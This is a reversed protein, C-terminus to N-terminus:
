QVEAERKEAVRKIREMMDKFSIQNDPNMNIVNIGTFGGRSVFYEKQDKHITGNIRFVDNSLVCKIGIQSYSLDSIFRDLGFPLGSRQESGSSITQIDEVANFSVTRPVGKVAVSQLELTFADAQGNAISLGDISGNLKGTVRGFSFAKTLKELDIAEFKLNSRLRRFPSLPSEMSFDSAVAHGEFLDVTVKGASNLQTKNGTIMLGESALIGTLEYPPPLLQLSGLNIDRLAIRGAIQHDNSFPSDVVADSVFVFGDALPLRVPDFTYRNDHLRLGIEQNRLQFRATELHGITIKGSRPDSHPWPKGAAAYAWPLDATLDQLNLTSAIQLGLQDLKLRGAVRDPQFSLECAAKGKLAIENLLPYAEALASQILTTFLVDLDALTISVEVPFLGKQSSRLRAIGGKALEMTGEHIRLGKPALGLDFALRLPALGFDIYFRGLLAEGQKISAHTELHNISTREDLRNALTVEAALNEAMFKGQPDAASALYLTASGTIVDYGQARLALNLSGDLQWGELYGVAPKIKEMANRVSVDKAELSVELPSLSAVAASFPGMGDISFVVAADRLDLAHVDLTGSGELSVNKLTVAPQRQLKLHDVYGKIEKIEIRDADGSFQLRGAGRQISVLSSQLRLDAFGVDGSFEVAANRGRIEVMDELTVGISGTPLVYDARVTELRCDAQWVLGAVAQDTFMQFHGLSLVRGALSIREYGLVSKMEQFAAHATVSELEPITLTFSGLLGQGATGTLSLELALLDEALLTGQVSVALPRTTLTAQFPEVWLAFPYGEQDGSLFRLAPTGLLADRIKVTHNEYFFPINGVVAGAKVSSSELFDASVTIMGEAHGQPTIEGSLAINGQAKWPDNAATEGAATLSVSGQLTRRDVQDPGTPPAISVKLERLTFSGKPAAMVLRDADLSVTQFQFLLALLFDPDPSKSEGKESFQLQADVGEIILLVPRILNRRFPNDWTGSFSVRAVKGMVEGAAAARLSIGAITIAPRVISLDISAITTQYGSKAEIVRPIYWHLIRPLLALLSAGVLLFVAACALIITAKRSM